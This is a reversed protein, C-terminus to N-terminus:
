LMIMELTLFNSVIWIDALSFIFHLKNMQCVLWIGTFIFLSHNCSIAHIFRLLLMNLPLSLLDYLLLPLGLLIRKLFISMLPIFFTFSYSDPNSKGPPVTFLFRGTLAPFVPKIVPGPFDWMNRSLLPGCGIFSSSRSGTSVLLPLWRLSFDECRLLSYGQEGYSSFLGSVMSSGTHGFIFFTLIISVGLIPHFSIENTVPLVRNSKVKQSPHQINM